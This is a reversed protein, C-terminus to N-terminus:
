SASMMRFIATPSRPVVTSTTLPTKDGSEVDVAYANFIGTEDSFILVKSDDPSFTFGASGAMGYSTTEYFASAEYTPLETTTSAEASPTPEPASPEKPSCAALLGFASVGCVLLRLTM